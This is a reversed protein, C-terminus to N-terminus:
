PKKHLKSILSNLMREIENMNTQIINYVENDLYSLDKSIEFLTQLEFLSGRAIKLFRIYDQTSQRGYGEALNAPISIACRRIQSIIGYQEDKPFTKTIRVLFIQFKLTM